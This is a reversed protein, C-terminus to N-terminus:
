PRRSCATFSASRKVEFDAMQADQRDTNVFYKGDRRFFRTTVSQHEFTAGGFDGRVTEPTPLAMAM